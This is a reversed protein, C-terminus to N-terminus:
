VNPELIKKKLLNRDLIDLPSYSHKNKEFNQDLIKEEFIEPVYNKKSLNPDLFKKNFVEVGSNNEESNQGRFNKKKLVELGFNNECVFKSNQFNMLNQAIKLIMADKFVGFKLDKICIKILSKGRKKFSERFLGGTGLIELRAVGSCEIFLAIAYKKVFFLM